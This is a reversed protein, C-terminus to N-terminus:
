KLADGGAGLAGGKASHCHQCGAVAFLYAGREADALASVAATVCLWLCVVFAAHGRALEARMRM